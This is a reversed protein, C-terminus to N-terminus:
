LERFSSHTHKIPPVSGYHKRFLKYVANKSEDPYSCPGIIVEVRSWFEHDDPKPLDFHIFPVILGKQPRFEVKEYWDTRTETILRWEREEIFSSNKLISCTKHLDWILQNSIKCAIHNEAAMPNSAQLAPFDKLFPMVTQDIVEQIKHRQETVDYVCKELIFNQKEAIKRLGDRSFGIAFGGEKCYARWQSLQDGVESFSCVYTSINKSVGIYSLDKQFRIKKNEPDNISDCIQRAINIGRMFEESDNLYFINTAWISRNKIIGILGESTTYHYLKSTKNM